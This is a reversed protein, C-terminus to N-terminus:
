KCGTRVMAEYRDLFESINHENYVISEHALYALERWKECRIRLREIEDAAEAHVSPFGILYDPLTRQVQVEIARLRPIIDDSM